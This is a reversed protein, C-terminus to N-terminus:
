IRKESKAKKRNQKEKWQIGKLMLQMQSMKPQRVLWPPLKKRIQKRGPPHIVDVDEWPDISLDFEDVDIEQDKTSM